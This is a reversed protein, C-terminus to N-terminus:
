HLHDGGEVGLVEGLLNFSCKGLSGVNFLRALLIVYLHTLAHHVEDGGTLVNRLTLAMSSIM